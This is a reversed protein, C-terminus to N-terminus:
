FEMINIKIIIKFFPRINIVYINMVIMMEISIILLVIFGFVFFIMILMIIIM